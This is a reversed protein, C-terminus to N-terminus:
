YLDPRRDDFVPIKKRIEPVMSLDIEATWIGENEDALVVFEGWPDIICSHGFFSTEGSSGVRNCAIIFMQNEIARAQLLTLWHKKRPNPWEAPLIVLGAGGLAYHRFLEPFRLDYCIALGLRSWATDVFTLRSGATLYQDESMLRFLHIKSYEGRNSGSKDFYVATNGYRGEGLVSLLSGVVEISNERAIAAVESFMGENTGTAYVAASQLDYGTSWLEPFVILDSGEKAAAATMANVTALNSTVNGVRVDMQGLSIKLNKTEEM